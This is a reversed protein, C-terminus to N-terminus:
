LIGKYTLAALAIQRATTTFPRQTSSKGGDFLGIQGAGMIWCAYRYKAIYKPDRCVFRPGRWEYTVKDM